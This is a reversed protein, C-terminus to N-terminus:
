VKEAARVIKLVADLAEQVGQKDPERELWLVQQAICVRVVIEVGSVVEWGNKVGLSYLFTEVSPSYCMDAVVGGETGDGVVEEVIKRCLVEGDERPAYDPVTGIVLFPAAAARGEEISNLSRIRLDPAVCRFSEILTETETELRNVVYIESPEFWKWLAYITSRAAGGAGIVLAPKGRSKSVADPVKQLIADRTGVCDTNTGIYQRKGSADLRVFTTNVSGMIRAEDTIASLAPQFSLKNPMTISTGICTDEGIIKRFTSVDITEKPYFTWKSMHQFITNQILPSLSHSVPKGLIYAKFQQSFADQPLPSTGYIYSQQLANM